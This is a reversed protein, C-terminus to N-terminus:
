APRQNANKFMRSKFLREEEIVKEPTTLTINDGHMRYCFLAQPIHWYMWNPSARLYFEYDGAWRYEPNLLGNQQFIQRRYVSNTSVICASILHHFNYSEKFERQMEKTKTNLVDYDSYVIGVEPYKDLIAISKELKDPYYYDDGDLLAIYDSKSNTIGTNRAGCQGTNITHTIIKTNITKPRNKLFGKIKEVSDDTSLDDVIILENPLYTQTYVSNIADKILHGQNYNIIVVAVSSKGM